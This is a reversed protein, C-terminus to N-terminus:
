KILNINRKYLFIPTIFNFTFTGNTHMYGFTEENLSNINQYIGTSRAEHTIDVDDIKVSYIEIALDVFIDRSKDVLLDTDLKNLFQIKFNHNGINNLEQKVVCLNLDDDAYESIFTFNKIEKNNIYILFEPKKDPLSHLKLMLELQKM